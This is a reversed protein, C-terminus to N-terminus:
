RFMQKLSRHSHTPTRRKTQTGKRLTSNHLCSFSFRFNTSSFTQCIRRWSLILCIMYTVLSIYLSVKTVLLTESNEWTSVFRPAEADKYATAPEIGRLLKEIKEIDSTGLGWTFLLYTLASQRWTKYTKGSVETEEWLSHQRCSPNPFIPRRYNAYTQTPIPRAQM